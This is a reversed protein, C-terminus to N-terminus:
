HLLNETHASSQVIGTALLCKGEETLPQFTRPNCAVIGTLLYAKEFALSITYNVLGDSIIADHYQVTVGHPLEGSTTNDYHINVDRQFPLTVTAKSVPSGTVTCTFLLPDNPCVGENYCRTDNFSAEVSIAAGAVTTCFSYGYCTTNLM